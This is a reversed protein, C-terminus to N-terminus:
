KSKGGQKLRAYDIKAITTKTSGSTSVGAMMQKLRINSLLVQLKNDMIHNEQSCGYLGKLKAQECEYCINM